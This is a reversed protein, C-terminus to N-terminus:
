SRNRLRSISSEVPIRATFTTGEEANSEVGISGGHAQAISQAIFLGLGFSSGGTRSEDARYFREFLHGIKEAPIPEGTNRVVLKVRDRSRRMELAVRPAGDEAGAPPGAYKMANDLLIKALRELEAADGLVSLGPEVKWSFDIGREFAVAEFQLASRETLESIDVREHSERRLAKGKDSEETARAAAVLEDVLSKMRTGEEVISSLWKENEEAPADPHSRLIDASALIVTIPTKLEHSADSVFRQQQQLTRAIPATAYRALVISVAFLLALAAVTRMAVSFASDRLVTDLSTTDLLAVVTGEPTVNRAYVLRSSPVRGFDEDASLAEELAQTLVDTQISVADENSAVVTQNEDILACYITFSVNTNQQAAEKEITRSADSAIRGGIWPTEFAGPGTDVALELGKRVVSNLSTALSVFGVVNTGILIISTLLMVIGVIKRRLKKLVPMGQAGDTPRKRAM